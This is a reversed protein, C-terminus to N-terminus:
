QAVELYSDELRHIKERLTNCDTKVWFFKVGLESVAAIENSSQVSSLVVLNLKLEPHERLWRLVGMGGIGPMKLDLLMLVPFPYVARDGYKQAGSLYAIAEEGSQVVYVQHTNETERLAEQVLLAYDPEDEVLLVPMRSEM